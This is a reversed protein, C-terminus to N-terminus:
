SNSDQFYELLPKSIQKYTFDSVELLYTSGDLKIYYEFSEASDQSLQRYLSFSIGDDSSKSIDQASDTSLVYSAVLEKSEMFEPNSVFVDTLKASVINRVLGSLITSYQLEKNEVESQNKTSLLVFDLQEKKSETLYSEATESSNAQNIPRHIVFGEGNAFEISLKNVDKYGVDFVSDKVWESGDTSLDFSQDVLYSQPESLLRVYSGSSKTSSNGIVLQYQNKAVQLTVLTGDGQSNADSNSDSNSNLSLGLRHYNKELKTKLEVIEADKLSQIVSSLKNLDAPYGDKSTVQWQEFLKDVKVTNQAQEITISNLAQWNLGRLLLSQEFEQEGHQNSLLATGIFLAALAVALIVVLQKLKM